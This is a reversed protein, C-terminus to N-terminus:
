GPPESAAPSQHLARISLAVVEGRDCVKYSLSKFLQHNKIRHSIGSVSEAKKVHVISFRSTIFPLLKKKKWYVKIDENFNHM